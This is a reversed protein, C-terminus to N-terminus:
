IMEDYYRRHYLAFGAYNAPNALPTLFDDKQSKWGAGKGRGKSSIQLVGQANYQGVRRTGVTLTRTRTRAPSMDRSRTPAPLSVRRTSREPAELAQCQEVM